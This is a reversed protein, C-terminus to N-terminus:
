WGYYYRGWGWSYGPYYGYGWSSGPYWGYGAYAAGWTYGPYAYYAPAPYAPYHLVPVTYQYVPAPYYAPYLSYPYSYGYLGVPSYYTSSAPWYGLTAGVAGCAAFNVGADYYGPHYYHITPSHTHNLNFHVPKAETKGATTTGPHVVLAPGTSDVNEATAPTGADSTETAEDARAGTSPVLSLAALAAWILSRTRRIM